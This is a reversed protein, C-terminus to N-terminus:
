CGVLNVNSTASVGTSRAGTTIQVVSKVTTGKPTTSVSVNAPKFTVFVLRKMVMAMVNVHDANRKSQHQMEMAARDVSKVRNVKLGTNVNTVFERVM